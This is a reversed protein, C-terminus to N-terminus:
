YLNHRHLLLEHAVIRFVTHRVRALTFPGIAGSHGADPYQYTEEKALVCCDDDGEFLRAYCLGGMCIIKTFNGAVANLM